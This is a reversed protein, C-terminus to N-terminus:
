YRVKFAGPLQQRQAEAEIKKAPEAVIPTPTEPQAVKKAVVVPVPDPAREGIEKLLRDKEADIEQARADITNVRFTSADREKGRRAREMELCAIRLYAKYPRYAPDANGSHTRIHEVGRLISKPIAM